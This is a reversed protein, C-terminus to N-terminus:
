NINQKMDLNFISINVCFFFRVLNIGVLISDRHKVIKLM